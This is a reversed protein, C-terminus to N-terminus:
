FVSKSDRKGARPIREKSGRRCLANLGAVFVSARLRCNVFISSNAAIVRRISVVVFM